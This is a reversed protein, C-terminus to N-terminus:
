PNYRRYESMEERSLRIKGYRFWNLILCFVVLGAVILLIEWNDILKQYNENVQM